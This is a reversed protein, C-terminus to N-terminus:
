FVAKYPLLIKNFLSSALARRKFLINSMLLGSELWAELYVTNRNKILAAAMHWIYSFIYLPLLRCPVFQLILWFTNRIGNKQALRNDRYINSVKHYAFLNAAIKIRYGHRLIRLSMETDEGCYHYEYQHYDIEKLVSKRFGAASETFLHTALDIEEDSYDKNFTKPKGKNYEKFYNVINFSVVGLKPHKEFLEVMGYIADDEVFADDDMTIVYKGQAARMGISHGQASGLNEPTIIIKKYRKDLSKIFAPSDDASCNDVVIRELNPYTYNDCYTITEQLDAKRNYSLIVISVLPYTDM